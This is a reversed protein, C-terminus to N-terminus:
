GVVKLLNTQFPTNELEIRSYCKRPTRRTRENHRYVLYSYTKGDNSKINQRYPKWALKNCKPCKTGGALSEEKSDAIPESEIKVAELSNSENKNRIDFEFWGVKKEIILEKIRRQSSTLNSTASKMEVFIIKDNEFQIGDIPAGIFRFSKENFPYSEMFPAFQENVRGYVTSQSRKQSDILDRENRFQESRRWFRVILLIEILSIAGIFALWLQDNQM